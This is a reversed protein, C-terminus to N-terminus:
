QPPFSSSCGGNKLHEPARNSLPVKEPMLGFPVYIHRAATTQVEDLAYRYM